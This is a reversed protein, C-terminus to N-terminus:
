TTHRSFVPRASISSIAVRMSQPCRLLGGIGNTTWRSCEDIEIESCRRIKRSVGDCLTMRADFMASLLMVTGPTRTTMLKPRSFAIVNSGVILTSASLSEHIEVALSVCRMPRAPRTQAPSHKWM